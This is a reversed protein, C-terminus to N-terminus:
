ITKSPPIMKETPPRGGGERRIRDTPCDQLEAEVEGKGVRITKPDLGTVKSTFSEGGHGVATSLLAAVWRRENESLRGFVLRVKEQWSEDNTLDHSRNGFCVLVESMEFEM